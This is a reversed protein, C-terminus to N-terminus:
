VISSDRRRRSLLIGLPGFCKRSTWGFFHVLLLVGRLSPDICSWEARPRSRLVQGRRCHTHTHTHTHLVPRHVCYRLCLCYSASLNRFRLSPHSPPPDSVDTWTRDNKSAATPQAANCLRCSCQIVFPPPPPCSLQSLRVNEGRHVM